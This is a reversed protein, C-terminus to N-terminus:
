ANKSGELALNLLSNSTVAEIKCNQSSKSDGM